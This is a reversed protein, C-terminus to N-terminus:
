SATKKRRESFVPMLIVPILLFFTYMYRFATVPGLMYTGWLALVTMISATYSPKKIVTALYLGIVIFIFPLSLSFCLGSVLGCNEIYNIMNEYYLEMEKLVPRREVVYPIIAVNVTEIYERQSYRDTIRAAPYWMQVNQALFSDVFDEPYKEFLHMYLDWFASRDSDYLDSDFTYKVTDALRPNYIGASMYNDIIFMEAITLYDFRRYYVTALQNIPVSLAERSESKEVGCLPYVAMMVAASIIVAVLSTIFLKKLKAKGSIILLAIVMVAAAPLFNNRLLCALVTNIFFSFASVKEGRGAKMIKLVLLVVMCSFLVDKTMEVSFINFAPYFTYFLMTIFGYYWRCGEAIERKVVYACVGSVIIVQFVCYLVLSYPHPVGAWELALFANWILTHLVPHHNSYTKIGFAQLTQWESDYALIGPYYALLALICSALVLVFTMWPLLKYIVPLKQANEAKIKEKEVTKDDKVALLDIEEGPLITQDDGSGSKESAAKSVPMEQLGDAPDGARRALTCKGLLAFFFLLPVFFLSFIAIYEVPHKTLDSLSNFNYVSRGISFVASLAISFIIESLGIFRKKRVSNNLIM